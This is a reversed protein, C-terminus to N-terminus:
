EWDLAGKALEYLFGFSLIVFFFLMVNWGYLGLYRFVLVWPMFFSIELDFIIFLICVLYFQVEFPGRADEFPNFGCEYPSNKETDFSRRSAYYALVSLLGVLLFFFFFFILLLNYSQVSILSM